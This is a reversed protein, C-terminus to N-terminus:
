PELDVAAKDSGDMYFPVSLHEHVVMWKGDKKRYCVTARVWVGTYEGSTRTGSIRNLSTSFAVEEGATIRLDRVEYGVPGQFTPFWAEWNQRNVDAGSHVLPPALDYSLIDPTYHAMLADVNKARLAQTLSDILQRIQAEDSTNRTPAAM